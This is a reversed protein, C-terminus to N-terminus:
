GREGGCNWALSRLRASCRAALPDPLRHLQTLLAATVDPPLVPPEDRELLHQLWQLWTRSQGAREKRLLLHLLM